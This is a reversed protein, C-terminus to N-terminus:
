INDYYIEYKGVYTANLVYLEGIIKDNELMQSECTVIEGDKTVCHYSIKIENAKKDGYIIYQDFDAEVRILRQRVEAVLAIEDSANGAEDVAGVYINYLGLTNLKNNTDLLM